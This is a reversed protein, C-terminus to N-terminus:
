IALNKLQHYSKRYFFVSLIIIVLDIVSSTLWVANLGYFLPSILICPIFLIVQRLVVLLGAMKANGISQFYTLTMIMIGYLAFTSYFLRFQLASISVSDGNIGFLAILNETWLQAPIWFVLALGISSLTFIKFIHHVRHYLKAGYNTGIAPQLGQAMGWLPIFSFSLIRLSASMTAGAENGGYKFAQSYLLSQQIITLLQMFMASAGISFIAKQIPQYPQVKNLKITKSIKKFYVYTVIAQTVQAILTAIAAGEIGYQPIFTMLIPDLIINIIAGLAMIMMARKMLGEGRIIMNASQTFNVFISGLFILRLYRTGLDLIEGNAGVLQLLSPSFFFGLLTIVTSFIIIWFTLNGMIHHLTKTNNEGIARSLVSASGIGVLTSIATNLYTFPMAIGVATMASKGLIQGAFIGDMLPYLGIVVMGLIAPISLNIMIQKPTATLLAKSNQNM